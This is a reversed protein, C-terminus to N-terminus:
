SATRLNLKVPANATIVKTGAIMDHGCRRDARFILLVDVMPLITGIVPLLSIVWISVSRLAVLRVLPVLQGDEVSVIRTGAIRKGITQGSTALMYGNIALFVVLTLVVLGLQVGLGVTDGFVAGLYGTLLLVPVIIVLSILSDVISGGLRALRSALEQEADVTAVDGVRASPPAYPNDIM